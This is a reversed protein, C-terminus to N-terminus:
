RDDPSLVAADCGYCSLAPRTRRNLLGPALLDQSGEHEQESSKWVVRIPALMTLAIVAMRGASMDSGCFPCEM